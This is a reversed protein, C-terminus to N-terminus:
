KLAEIIKNETDTDLGKFAWYGVNMGDKFGFSKDKAIEVSSFRYVAIEKGDITLWFSVESNEVSTQIGGGKTVNYGASKLSSMLEQPSLKRKGCGPQIILLFISFIIAILYSPSKM